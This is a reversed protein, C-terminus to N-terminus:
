FVYWIVLSITYPEFESNGAVEYSVRSYVPPIDKPTGVNEDLNFRGSAAWILAAKTLQNIDNYSEDYNKIWVFRGNGSRTAHLNAQMSSFGNDTTLVTKSNKLINNMSDHNPITFSYSSNLIRLDAYTIGDDYFNSDIGVVMVAWQDVTFIDGRYYLNYNYVLYPASSNDTGTRIEYPTQKLYFYGKREENLSFEPTHARSYSSTFIKSMKASVNEPTSYEFYSNSSPSGVGWDIAALGNFYDDESAQNSDHIAIIARNGDLFNRVENEYASLNTMNFLFIVDIDKRSLLEAIRTENDLVLSTQRGRFQLSSSNYPLSLIERLREMDYYGCSCGIRINPRPINEMEVSFLMTRPLMTKIYHELGGSAETFNNAIVFEKLNGSLGLAMLSDRGSIDLYSSSWESQRMQFSIFFSLSCLLIVSAMIVELTKVFGKM